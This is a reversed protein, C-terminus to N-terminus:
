PAAVFTNSPKPSVGGGCASRAIYIALLGFSSFLSHIYVGNCFVQLLVRLEEFIVGVHDGFDENGMRMAPMRDRNGFPLDNRQPLFIMLEFRLEAFQNAEAGFVLHRPFLDM